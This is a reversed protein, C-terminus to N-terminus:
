RSNKFTWAVIIGSVRALLIQFGDDRGRRSITSGNKRTLRELRNRFNGFQWRGHHRSSPKRRYKQWTIESVIFWKSKVGTRICMVNETALWLGASRTEKQIYDMRNIFFNTMTFRDRFQTAVFIQINFLGDLKVCFFSLSICDNILGNCLSQRKVVHRHLSLIKYCLEKLM